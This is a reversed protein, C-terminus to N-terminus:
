HDENAPSRPPILVECTPGTARDLRRDLTVLPCDLAEAVAVYWADYSTLNGRLAWVREAFPAFPFLEIDLRFLHGHASTAELRSIQGSRELRRLINSVEVLALEPGALSGAAIISEAWAGERGSDVLAAVLVSADVVVTM